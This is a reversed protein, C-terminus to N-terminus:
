AAGCAHRQGPRWLAPVRALAAVCGSQSGLTPRRPRCRGDSSRASLACGRALCLRTAPYLLLCLGTVSLSWAHLSASRLPWRAAVAGAALLNSGLQLPALSVPPAVALGPVSPAVFDYLPPSAAAFAGLVLACAAMRRLAGPGRRASLGRARGPSGVGCGLVLLAAMLLVAAWAPAEAAPRLAAGVVPSASAASASLPAFGAM